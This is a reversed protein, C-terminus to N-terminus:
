VLGAPKPLSPAPCGLGNYEAQIDNTYYSQLNSLATGLRTNIDRLTTISSLNAATTATLFNQIAQCKAQKPGTPVTGNCITPSAYLNAIQQRANDLSAIGNAIKQKNVTTTSFTKFLMNTVAQYTNCADKISGSNSYPITDDAADQSMLMNLNTDYTLPPPRDYCVQVDGAPTQKPYCVADATNLTHTNSPDFSAIGAPDCRQIFQLATDEDPCLLISRGDELTRSDGCPKGTCYTADSLATQATGQFPERIGRQIQLVFFVIVVTFLLFLFVRQITRTKM